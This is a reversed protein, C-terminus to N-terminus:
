QNLQLFPKLQWKLGFAGNDGQVELTDWGLVVLKRILMEDSLIVVGIMRLDERSLQRGTFAEIRFGTNLWDSFQHKYARDGKTIKAKLLTPAIGLVFSQKAADNFDRVLRSRDNRDNFWDVINNIFNAFM